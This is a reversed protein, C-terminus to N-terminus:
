LISTILFLGQYLFKRIFMKPHNIILQIHDELKISLILIRSNEIKSERVWHSLLILNKISKISKNLISPSICKGKIQFSYCIINRLISLNAMYNHIVILSDLRIILQTITDKWWLKTLLSIHTYKNNLKQYKKLTLPQKM